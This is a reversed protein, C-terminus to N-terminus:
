ESSTKARKAFRERAELVADVMRTRDALVIDMRAGLGLSVRPQGEIAPLLTAVGGHGAVPFDDSEAWGAFRAMRVGDLLEDINVRQRVDPTEANFYRGIRAVEDDLESGLLVKGMASRCVSLTSGTRIRFSHRHHGQLSSIVRLRIGQRIAVIVTQGTKRRLLDMASILSGDTFMEDHLWSGLLMVRLTPRYKRTEPDQIVYGLGALSALLASTSSQPYGLTRSIEILSAPEHTDAFHELLELVREASKVPPSAAM